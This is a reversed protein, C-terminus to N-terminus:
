KPLPMTPSLFQFKRRASEILEQILLFTVVALGLALLYHHLIFELYREMAQTLSLYHNFSPHLFLTHAMLVSLHLHLQNVPCYARVATEFNM